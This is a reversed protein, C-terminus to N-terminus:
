VGHSVCMMVLGLPLGLMLIIFWRIIVIVRVKARFNILEMFCVRFRVRLAFTMM